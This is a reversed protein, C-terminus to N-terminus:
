FKTYSSLKAKAQENEGRLQSALDQHIAEAEMQEAFGRDLSEILLQKTLAVAFRPKNALQQAVALARELLVDDPVIENALGLALAREASLPEGSALWEFAHSRGIMRPLMWSTGLDPVMGIDIWSPVFRAASAMIRIDAALAFGIAGGAVAGNLAAIVPKRLAALALLPPHFASRLQMADPDRQYAKIDAGACFNRGAGALVVAGCRENSAAAFAQLLGRLLTPDLANAVHPRNMTVVLVDGEWRTLACAASGEGKSETGAVPNGM